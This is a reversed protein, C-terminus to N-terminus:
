DWYDAIVKHSCMPEYETDLFYKRLETKDSMRSQHMQHQRFWKAPGSFWFRGDSHIKWYAKNYEKETPERYINQGYHFRGIAYYCEFDYEAYQGGIKKGKRDWSTNNEQEYDKRRFTRSM